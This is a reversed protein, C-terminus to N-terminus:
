STATSESSLTASKAQRAEGYSNLRAFLPGFVTWALRGVLEFLFGIDTVHENVAAATDLKVLKGGVDLEADFRKCHDLFVERLTSGSPKEDGDSRQTIVEVLARGILGFTALDVSEFSMGSGNYSLTDFVGSTYLRESYAELYVDAGDLVSLPTYRISEGSTLVLTQTDPKM